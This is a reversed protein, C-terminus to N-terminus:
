TVGDAKFAVRIKALEEDIQAELAVKDFDPAFYLTVPKSLLEM